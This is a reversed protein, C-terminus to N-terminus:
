LIDQTPLSGYPDSLGVGPEVCSWGVRHRLATGLHERLELVPDTGVARPLPLTLSCLEASGEVGQSSSCSGHPRWEAGRSQALCVWPGRCEEYVKDELGKGMKADRRQISELITKCGNQATPGLSCGTCSILGCLASCLPCGRGEGLPLAPGPAGWHTTPGGPTLACQQSRYLKSGALAGM